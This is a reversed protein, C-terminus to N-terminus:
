NGIEPLVLYNADDEPNITELDSMSYYAIKEPDADDLVFLLSGDPSFSLTHILDWHNSLVYNKNENLDRVRVIGFRDGWAILDGTPSFAM